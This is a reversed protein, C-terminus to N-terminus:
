QTKLGKGFLYTINIRRNEYGEKFYIKDTEHFLNSNFLVARNCRYPIRRSGARNQKLFDYIAEENRNYDHFSWSPPAPIDYVVLGGSAADLNAEDPTIWFNLNVRAFDAHVGIGAGMKSSYKFGWLQELRHGGFIRPMKQQLEVAIQVHLPSVFGDKAFAGLYHNRYERKWVPSYLCFKRLELLAQPSLLNDICVIEPESSFYQAEIAQWDNDPNLCHTLPSQVSYRSANNRFRHIDATEDGSLAITAIGTSNGQPAPTRARIGKLRGNAERLGAIQSGLALLYDTQELEHAVRFDSMTQKSRLEDLEQQLYAASTAAGWQEIEPVNALDALHLSFINNKADLFDPKITLARQYCALAEARRELGQLVFGRNCHAEAYAPKLTIAQEYSALAEDLQGLEQLALGRNNHTGALAPKLTIAQAYSALADNLRKLESLTIGQNNYTEAYDPKLKIAQAYHALADDHRKLKNCAVGKGSWAEACAPDLRIAHDFCNIAGIANAGELEILGLNVWSEPSAADLDIAKLLLAKAAQPRQLKLLASSLNTMTSVRDPVLELASRLKAEAQAYEERELCTVGEYFLVKAREFNDM